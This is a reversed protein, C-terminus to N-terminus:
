KGATRAPKGSSAEASKTSSAAPSKGGTRKGSRAPPACERATIFGDGDRDYRAFEALEAPTPKPAYEALSIQGDGNADRARFWEPLGSPLRSPSVYFKKGATPDTPDPAAKPISPPSPSAGEKSKPKVGKDAAGQAVEPPRPSSVTMAPNPVSIRRRQGYAALHLIMEELTITHDGNRDIADPAGQMARWEDPELRGDGNRDYRRVLHEAYRRAKVPLADLTAASGRQQASATAASQAAALASPAASCLAIAVAATGLVPPFFLRRVRQATATRAPSRPATTRAM